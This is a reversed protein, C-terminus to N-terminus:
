LFIHMFMLADFQNKKLHTFFILIGSFLSKESM